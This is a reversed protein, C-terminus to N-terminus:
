ALGDDALVAAYEEYYIRGDDEDAAASGARACRTLLHKQLERLSHKLALVLASDLRMWAAADTWAAHM